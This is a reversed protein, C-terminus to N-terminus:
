VNLKYRKETEVQQTGPRFTREVFTVEGNGNMYVLTSSRTGYNESQIFVSSVTKELEASLGTQPLKEPPYQRTDLLLSFMQEENLGNTELCSKLKERAWDSKPWSTNLFANSIAHYGPEIKYISEKKNSIYFLKDLTGAILNFGNYLESTQHIKDLSKAPNEKNLLFRTIIEGRSPTNEKIENLNRYNTLAAIRGNETLGLWTGGAKLDKGAILNPDTKWEHATKTPRKYFEDRNAALIFPYDPHAKYAFVILCM